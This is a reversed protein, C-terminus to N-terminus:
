SNPPLSHTMRAQAQSALPYDAAEALNFPVRSPRQGGHGSLTRTKHQLAIKRPAVVRSMRRLISREDSCYEEAKRRAAGTM